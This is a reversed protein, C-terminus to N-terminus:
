KVMGYEKMFRTVDASNQVVFKLTQEPSMRDICSYTEACLKKWEPSDLARAAAARLTALAEAPVKASAVVGRWNPLDIHQGFEASAPTDPFSPHRKPAFVVLPRYQKSELFQVVDGPEEFLVESHGGLPSAYREGPKAFPVNVMPFGQTGLFKVAIDDLTGYGATAVRIKGPNAKAEDLLAKYDKFRSAAPVFLMSPSSQGIAIYSFDPIQMKGLGSAWASITLGTMTGITYGDPTSTLVKTLGANGSAGAVNAVPVPVGLIPEMIKAMARGIQDAGGGPGFNVIMDIPRSPFKGQAHAALPVVSICAAAMVVARAITIRMM